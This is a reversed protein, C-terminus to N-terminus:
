SAGIGRDCARAYGLAIAFFIVIRAVYVLALVNSGKWVVARGSLFNDISLRAKLM